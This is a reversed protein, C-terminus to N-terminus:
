LAQYVAKQDAAILQLRAQIEKEGITVARAIAMDERMPEFFERWAKFEAETRAAGAMYRPYGELTKDGAMERVYDWHNTLWEFAQQRSRPNRYLYVYLYLQDQPKVIEPKDLLELMKALVTQDKSITGAFLLEFKVEPDTESQYKTLYDDVIEPNLYLKADLISERIEPELEHIDDNYMKALEAINDKTEAYFDLGM